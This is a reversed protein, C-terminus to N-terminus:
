MRNFMEYFIVGVEYICWLCFFVLSIWFIIVYYNEIIGIVNAAFINLIQLIAPTQVLVSM